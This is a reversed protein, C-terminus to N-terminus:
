WGREDQVNVRAGSSLLLRVIEEYAGLVKYESATGEMAFMLPTRGHRDVANPDAGKALLARAVAKHDPVVTREQGNGIRARLSGAKMLATEGENDRADPAVGSDLLEQVRRADGEVAAHWLAEVPTLDQSMLGTALLLALAAARRHRM